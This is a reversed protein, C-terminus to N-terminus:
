DLLAVHTCPDTSTSKVFRAYNSAVLKYKEHQPNNYISAAKIVCSPSKRWHRQIISTSNSNTWMKDCGVCGKCSNPDLAHAAVTRPDNKRKEEAKIGHAPQELPILASILLLSCQMSV